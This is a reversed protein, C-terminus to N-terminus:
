WDWNVDEWDVEAFLEDELAFLEVALADRFEEDECVVDWGEHVTGESVTQM